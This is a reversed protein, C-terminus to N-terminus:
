KRSGEKFASETLDAMKELDEMNLNYEELVFQRLAGYLDALECMELIRVKQFRADKLEELEEEIKSIHGFVGKEIKRIHYGM